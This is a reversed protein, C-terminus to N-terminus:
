SHILFCWLISNFLELYFLCELCREMSHVCSHPNLLFTIYTVHVGLMEFVITIYMFQPMSVQKLNSCTHRSLHVEPGSYWVWIIHQVNDPLHSAYDSGVWFPSPSVWTAYSTAHPNQRFTKMLQGLMRTQIWNLWTGWSYTMGMWRRCRIVIM